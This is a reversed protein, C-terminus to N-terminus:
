KQLMLFLLLVPLIALVAFVLFQGWWVGMANPM